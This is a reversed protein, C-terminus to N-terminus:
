EDFLPDGDSDLAVVDGYEDLTFIKKANEIAEDTAFTHIGAGAMGVSIFGELASNAYQKSKFEAAQLLADKDDLLKQHAANQLAMKKEEIQQFNGEIKLRDEEAQEAKTLFEKYKDPDIDKYKAEFEKQIKEAKKAHDREAQIAAKLGAVDPVGGDVDLVFKGDKEVYLSHIAEPLEDLNEVSLALAM